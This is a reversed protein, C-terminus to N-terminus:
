LRVAPPKQCCRFIILCLFYYCDDVIRDSGKIGQVAFGEMKSVFEQDDIGIVSGMFNRVGETTFM